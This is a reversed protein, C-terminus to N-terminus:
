YIRLLGDVECYCDTYGGADCIWNCGLQPFDFYIITAKLCDDKWIVKKM